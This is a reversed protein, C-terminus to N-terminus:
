NAPIKIFSNLIKFVGDYDTEHTSFSYLYSDKQWSYDFTLRNGGVIKVKGTKYVHIDFDSWALAIAKLTKIDSTGVYEFNWGNQEWWVSTRDDKEYATIGNILKFSKADKPIDISSKSTNSNKGSISGVFDSESVPGNKDLLDNNDNFKVAKKTKYVNINYKDDSGLVEYYYKQTSPQSIIPNWLSPLYIPIKTTEKLWNILDTNFDINDISLQASKKTPTIIETILSPSVIISQTESIEKKECGTILVCCLFFTGMFLHKKSM